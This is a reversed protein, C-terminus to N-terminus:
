GRWEPGGRLGPCFFDDAVAQLVQLGPLGKHDGAIGLPFQGGGGRFKDSHGAPQECPLGLRASAEGGSGDGNGGRIRLIGCFWSYLEWNQPM